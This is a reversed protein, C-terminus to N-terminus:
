DEYLKVLVDVHMSLPRNTMDDLITARDEYDYVSIWSAACIVNNFRITVEKRGDINLLQGNHMSLFKLAGDNFPDFELKMVNYDENV